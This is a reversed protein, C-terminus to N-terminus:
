TQFMQNGMLLFRQVLENVSKAPPKLRANRAKSYQISSILCHRPTQVIGIRTKPIFAM